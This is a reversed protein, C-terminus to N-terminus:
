AGGDVDTLREGVRRAFGPASLVVALAGIPFVLHWSPLRMRRKVFLLLIAGVTTLLYIVLLILTGISGSWAFTDSATAGFFLGCVGIILVAAATVASVAAM